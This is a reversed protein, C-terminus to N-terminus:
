LARDFPAKRRTRGALSVEDFPKLPGPRSRHDIEYDPLTAETRDNPQM